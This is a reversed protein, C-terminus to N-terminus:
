NYTTDFEIALSNNIGGYGLGMGPEGLEIQGANQIVFAFGDSGRSRCHTYVNDMNRCVTSPMSLRFDFQTEFGERVQMKRGYWAAGSLRAENTTLRLAPGCRRAPEYDFRSRNAILIGNSQVEASM